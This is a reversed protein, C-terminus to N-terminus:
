VPGQIIFKSPIAVRCALLLGLLVKFDSLHGSKSRRSGSQYRCPFYRYVEHNLFSGGDRSILGSPSFFCSRVRLGVLRWAFLMLAAFYEVSQGSVFHLVLLRELRRDHVFVVLGPWALGFWTRQDILGGGQAKGRCSARECRQCYGERCGLNM